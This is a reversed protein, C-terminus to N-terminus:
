APIKALDKRRRDRGFLELAHSVDDIDKVFGCQLCSSDWSYLDRDVILAGTSCRPCAKYMIM